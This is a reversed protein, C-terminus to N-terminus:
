RAALERPERSVLYRGGSESIRTGMDRSLREVHRAVATGGPGALIRPQFRVESNLVNLPILEVQGLGNDLTIRAIISRDSKKSRSAFAFNGLSYFIIGERYYEIGQLVHPHHGLVVSAGADIAKHALNKQYPKPTDACEVGWHFSVVVYDASSRARRIDSTVFAEYGPATGPRNTTAFFEAPYTLSYSLLAVKVGKVSVIRERRSAELDLGAGTHTIGNADLAEMTERLAAPGFDLMHNNALSLHTFGAKRIAAAAAPDSRFRFRKERFENGGTAIPAELNGITIDGTRLTAATAAFPYDYGSREFIGGRKDALMIDGVANIIVPEAMSLAPILLILLFPILTLM